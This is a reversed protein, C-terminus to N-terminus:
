KVRTLRARHSCMGAAVVLWPSEQHLGCARRQMTEATEAGHRVQQGGQQLSCLQLSTILDGAHFNAVAEVKHPASNLMGGSAAFKGGTPDEEVQYSIDKPIRLVSVNGFKDAGVMTDYDLQLACTIYRCLRDAHSGSFLTCPVTAEVLRLLNIISPIGITCKQMIPWRCTSCLAVETPVVVLCWVSVLCHEPVRSLRHLGCRPSMDDAFIYFSNEHKKYRMFHFSDHSDGVYIRYGSTSISTILNPIGAFECKRLLKKRGCEMLRLSRGCGVLLRGQFEALAAPIAGPGLSTKHWPVLSRGDAAFQYLRM